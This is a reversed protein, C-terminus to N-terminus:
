WRAAVTALGCRHSVGSRYRRSSTRSGGSNPFCRRCPERGLVDARAEARELVRVALPRVTRVEGCVRSDRDQLALARRVQREDRLRPGKPGTSSQAWTMGRVTGSSAAVDYRRLLLSSARTMWVTGADRPVGFSESSLQAAVGGISRHLTAAFWCHFRAVGREIRVSPSPTPTAGPCSAIPLTYARTPV